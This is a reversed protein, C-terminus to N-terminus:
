NYASRQRATQRSGGFWNSLDILFGLGVLFWGFGSVGGVPAYAIAYFLTTFPLLLWGLFAVWFSEFAREMYGSFAWLLVIAVRPFFAGIAVVVCM